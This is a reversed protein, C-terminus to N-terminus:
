LSFCTDEFNISHSFYNVFLHTVDFILIVLLLHTVDFAIDCIIM